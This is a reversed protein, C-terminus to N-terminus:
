ADFSNPFTKLDYNPDASKGNYQVAWVWGRYTYGKASKGNIKKSLDSSAEIWMEQIRTIQSLDVILEAVAQSVAKFLNRAARESNKVPTSRNNERFFMLNKSVLGKGARVQNLTMGGMFCNTGTHAKKKRLAFKRNIQDVAPIYGITGKIYTAM